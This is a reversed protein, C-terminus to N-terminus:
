FLDTEGPSFWSLAPRTPPEAGPPATLAPPLPDLDRGLGLVREVVADTAKSGGSKKARVSRVTALADFQGVIGLVSDNM